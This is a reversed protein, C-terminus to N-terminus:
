NLSRERDLVCTQAHSIKDKLIVSQSFVKKGTKKNFMYVHLCPICDAYLVVRFLSRLEGGRYIDVTDTTAVVARSCGLGGYFQSETALNKAANEAMGQDIEKGFANISLIIGVVIFVKNMLKNKSNMM